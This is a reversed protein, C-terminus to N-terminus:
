KNGLITIIKDCVDTKATQYAKGGAHEFSSGSAKYDNFSKKFLEKGTSTQFVAVNVDVYSFYIGSIEGGKRTDANIKITLDSSGESSVYSYGADSLKDKLGAEIVPVGLPKGFNKENVVFFIQSPSVELYFKTEPLTTFKM